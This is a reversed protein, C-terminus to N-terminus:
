EFYEKIDDFEAEDIDNEDDDQAKKRKKTVKVKSHEHESDQELDVEIKKRNSCCPSSQSKSLAQHDKLTTMMIKGRKKKKQTVRRDVDSESESLLRKSQQHNQRNQHSKKVKAVVCVSGESESGIETQSQIGKRSDSPLIVMSSNRRLPTSRNSRRPASSTRPPSTSVLRSTSIQRSTPSM